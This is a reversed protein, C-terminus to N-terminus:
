ADELLHLTNPWKERVNQIGASLTSEMNFDSSFDISNRIDNVTIEVNKGPVYSNKWASGDRHTLEVLDFATLQGYKEATKDIIKVQKSPVDNMDNSIPAPTKIESRGFSKFAHYVLPEVPGYDWAQIQDSFLPKGTSRLSEVQAFYVLKNLSLNTLRLSNGHRVILCNAVDISRM